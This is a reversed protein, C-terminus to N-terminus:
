AQSRASVSQAQLHKLTPTRPLCPQSPRQKLSKSELKRMVESSTAPIHFIHFASLTAIMTPQNEKTACSHPFHYAQM